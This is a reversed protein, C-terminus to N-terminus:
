RASLATQDKGWYDPFTHHVVYRIGRNDASLVEIEAERFQITRSASLDFRLESSTPPRGYYGSDEKYIVTIVNGSRGAYVLRRQLDNGDLEDKRVRTYGHEHDCVSNFVGREIVCLEKSSKSARIAMPAERIGLMDVNVRIIGLGQRSPISRYSHYTYTADEAMLPYFGPSLDYNAIRNPATLVIGDMTTFSGQRLMDQGAAVEAEHGLAPFDISSRVPAVSTPPVMSTCGSLLVGVCAVLKRM